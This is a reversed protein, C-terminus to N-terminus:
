PKCSGCPEYGQKVLNKRSGKYEERNSSSMSAAGSCSPRHFKRTSTNLIYTEGSAKEKGASAGEAARSEGTTYDIEVDPQVNYVYVNFALDEGGDGVSEAEMQVGSAVLNDGEFVPTVRYMVNNGTEKIYDAVMNEFPLMGETNMYRTGTILNRDNANEATLQYGILHCRNYLYKGDVSDYKATQWGTPKVRSINGRKETPMLDRGINAEATGCRGLADLEGYEEYSGAELQESEFDPENNDIVVYPEGAYEPVEALSIEEQAAKGPQPVSGSQGVPEAGCGGTGLLLGCLLLAAIKHNRTRM